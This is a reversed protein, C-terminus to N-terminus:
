SGTHSRPCPCLCSGGFATSACGTCIGIGIGIGTDVAAPPAVALTVVAAVEVPLASHTFTTELIPALLHALPLRAHADSSSKADSVLRHVVLLVDGSGNFPSQTSSSSGSYM